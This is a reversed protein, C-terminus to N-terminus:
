PDVRVIRNHIASVAGFLVAGGLAVTTFEIVFRPFPDSADSIRFSLDYMVHAVVLSEGFLAGRFALLGTPWRRGSAVTLETQGRAPVRRSENPSPIIEDRPM